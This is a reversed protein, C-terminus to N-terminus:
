RGLGVASGELPWRQRGLPKGVDLLGFVFVVTDVAQEESGVCSFAHWIMKLYSLDFYWLRDFGAGIIEVLFPPLYSAVPLRPARRRNSEVNPLPNVMGTLDVLRAVLRLVRVENGGEADIPPNENEVTGFMRQLGVAINVGLNLKYTVRLLAVAQAPVWM